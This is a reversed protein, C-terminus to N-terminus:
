HRIKLDDVTFRDVIGAGTLLTLTDRAVFSPSCISKTADAVPSGGLIDLMSHFVIDSSATKSKNAQMTRVKDPYSDAYEQSYWVFMPVHYETECVQYSGHLALKRDDDWFSEGHDSIYLIVAARNLSDAYDILQRLFYDTYLIANDYANVLKDKHEETVMAHSFSTGFVPQYVEFAKPYRQEYRFHCGITHLVFFQSSDTMFGRILPMFQEDYNGDVDLAKGSCYSDDCANTIRGTLTTLTQNSLYSARFGLEQAAEPLSKERYALEPVDATARTLLLPISTATRNAQTFISDFSILNDTQALLPSTNREYGHMGWHDYRAAEGLVLFYLEPSPKDTPSLDFSFSEVEKQMRRQERETMLVDLSNIYLNYPYMKYFKSTVAGLADPMVDAWTRERHLHKMYVAMIAFGLVACVATIVLLIRSWKKGLLYQNEVRAALLFYICWLVVVALCVPWMSLLLEGAENSDTHFINQMFAASASQRNLYLSAIDIPFFLFNFVGEVIFYVRAKLIMAPILLLLIIVLLYAMKKALSYELDIATFLAYFIPLLLLGFLLAIRIINRTKATM